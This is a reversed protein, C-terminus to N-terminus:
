SGNKQGLVHHRRTCRVRCVISRAEKMKEIHIFRATEFPHIKQRNVFRKLMCALCSPDYRKSVDISISGEWNHTLFRNLRPIVKQTM